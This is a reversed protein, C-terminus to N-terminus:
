VIIGLGLALTMAGTSIVYPDAWKTNMFSVILVSLKLDSCGFCHFSTTDGVAFFFSFGSCASDCM